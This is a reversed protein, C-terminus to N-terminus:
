LEPLRFSKASSPASRLLIHECRMNKMEHTPTLKMKEERKRRASRRGEERRGTRSSMRVDLRCYKHSPDAMTETHEALTHIATYAITRPHVIM